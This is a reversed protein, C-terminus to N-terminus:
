QTTVVGGNNGILGAIFAFEVGGPASGPRGVNTEEKV